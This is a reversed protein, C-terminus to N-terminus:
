EARGILEREAAYFAELADAYTDTGTGYGRQAAGVTTGCTPCLVYGTIVAIGFHYFPGACKRHPSRSETDSALVLIEDGLHVCRLVHAPCHCEREPAQDRGDPVGVFVASDVRADAELSALEQEFGKADASRATFNSNQGTAPRESADPPEFGRRTAMSSQPACTSSELAFTVAPAEKM